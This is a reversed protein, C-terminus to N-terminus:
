FADSSIGSPGYQIALAIFVEHFEADIHTVSSLRLPYYM